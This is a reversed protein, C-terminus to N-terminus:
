YTKSNAKTFNRPYFYLFFGQQTLLVIIFSQIKLPQYRTLPLESDLLGCCKRFSSSLIKWICIFIKDLSHSQNKAPMLLFYLFHAIKSMKIVMVKPTFMVLCIVGNKGDWREARDTPINWKQMELGEFNLEMPDGRQM